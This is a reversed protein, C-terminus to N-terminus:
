VVYKFSNFVMWRKMEKTIRDILERYIEVNKRISKVYM